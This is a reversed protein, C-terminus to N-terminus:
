FEVLDFLCEYLDEAEAREPESWWVARVIVPREFDQRLAPVRIEGQPRVVRAVREALAHLILLIRQIRGRPLIIRRPHRQLM